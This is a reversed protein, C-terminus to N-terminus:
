RASSEALQELEAGAGRAGAGALIAVKTKGGALLEAARELRTPAGPHPGAGLAGATHGPVNRKFRREADTPMAQYDIPICIHSVTRNSLATRCALNVVNEVHEPGM